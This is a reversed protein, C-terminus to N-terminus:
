SCIAISCKFHLYNWSFFVKFIFYVSSKLCKLTPHPRPFVVCCKSALIHLLSNYVTPPTTFQYLWTSVTHYNRLFKFISSGCSGSNWKWSCIPLFHFWYRLSIDASRHKSFCREGYDLYPITSDDGWIREKETVVKPLQSKIEWARNYDVRAKIGLGQGSTVQKRVRYNSKKWSTVDMSDPSIYGKSDSNKCKAFYM